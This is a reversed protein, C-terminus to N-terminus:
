RASRGINGKAASRLAKTMCGAVSPWATSSSLTLPRQVTRLLGSSRRARTTESVGSPSASSASAGRAPGTRSRWIASSGARKSRSAAASSSATSSKPRAPQVGFPFAHGHRLTEFVQRVDPGHQRLAQALGTNHCWFLKPGGAVSAGEGLQNRGVGRIGAGVGAEGEGTGGAADAPMAEGGVEAGFQALAERALDRRAFFAHARAGDPRGEMP